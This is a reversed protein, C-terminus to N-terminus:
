EKTLKGAAVSQAFLIGYQKAKELDEDTPKFRCRIGEGVIKMKLQKLRELINPVGEGSWGYAGFVGAFKGGHIKPNLAVAINWIPPLADGVLTPTGLIFGEALYIQEMVEDQSSTVMDYLKVDVEGISKIGEAISEALMKTYGYASVYPIVITKKDSRTPESAWEKYKEIMTDTNNLLVPGHGNAIIYIELNDVRECAKLVDTKFPGMICDFYYKAAKLYDQMPLFIDDVINEYSYHSGFMDCSVLIKEEPIYTFMSDPWHLNPAIM